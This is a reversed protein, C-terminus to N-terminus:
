RTYGRSTAIWHEADARFTDGHSTTTVIVHRYGRDIISARAQPWGPKISSMIRNSCSLAPPPPAQVTHILSIPVALAVIVLRAFAMAVISFKAKVECRYRRAFMAPSATVYILVAPPHGQTM